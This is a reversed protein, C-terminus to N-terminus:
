VANLAKKIFIEVLKGANCYNIKLKPYKIKSVRFLEDAFAPGINEVNKFDFMVETFKELRLLIRKAQSRSVLYEDGYEALQIRVDTKAFKFDDGIVYKFFIDNIQRESRNNLRLTIETGKMEKLLPEIKWFDPSIEKSFSYNGSRIQFFDFMRSTFFIGEGSHRAPDSTLKGKFLELLAYQPEKLQFNKELNKFIGIGNDKIKIETYLFNNLIYIEAKKSGSHDILNNAMDSFGYMWIDYVNKPLNLKEFIPAITNDRVTYENSNQLIREEFTKELIPKLSYQISKGKGKAQIIKERLLNKLHVNVAQRSISFKEVVLNTIKASNFHLNKCIFNRIRETQETIETM